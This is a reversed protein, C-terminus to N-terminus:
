KVFLAFDIHEWTASPVIQTKVKGAKEAKDLTETVATLTEDGLIDVEGAILQAEANAPDIFKIV